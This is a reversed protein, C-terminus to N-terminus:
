YWMGKWVMYYGKLTLNWDADVAGDGKLVDLMIGREYETTKTEVVKRLPIELKLATTLAIRLWMYCPYVRSKSRFISELTPDAM